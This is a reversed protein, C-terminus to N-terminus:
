CLGRKVQTQFEAMLIVHLIFRYQLLMFYAERMNFIIYKKEGRPQLLAVKFPPEACCIGCGDAISFTFGTMFMDLVDCVRLWSLAGISSLYGQINVGISFV